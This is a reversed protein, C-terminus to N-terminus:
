SAADSRSNPMGDAAILLSARNASHEAKAATAGTAATTPDILVAEATVNIQENVQGVELQVDLSLTRNVTLEVNQFTSNAFGSGSVTITYTGAPLAAIRYSGNEDSKTTPAKM